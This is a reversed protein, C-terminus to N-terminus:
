KCKSHSSQPNSAPGTATKISPKNFGTLKRYDWTQIKCVVSHSFNYESVSDIKLLMNVGCNLWEGACIPFFETYDSNSLKNRNYRLVKLKDCELSHKKFQITYKM